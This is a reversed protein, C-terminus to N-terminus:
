NILYDLLYEVDEKETIPMPTDLVGMCYDYDWWDEDNGKQLAEVIHIALFYDGDNIKEKAFEKLHDLTTIEDFEENLQEMCEEFSKAEFEARTM